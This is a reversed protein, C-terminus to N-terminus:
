RTRPTTALYIRRKPLRVANPMKCCSGIIHGLFCSCVTCSSMYYKTCSAGAWLPPGAIPPSAAPRIGPYTPGPARAVEARVAVDHWSPVQARPGVQASMQRTQWPQVRYRLPHAPLATAAGKVPFSATAHTHVTRLCPLVLVILVIGLNYMRPVTSARLRDWRKTQCNQSYRRHQHRPEISQLVPLAGLHLGAVDKSCAANVSSLVKYELHVSDLKNSQCM